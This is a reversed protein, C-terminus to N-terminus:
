ENPGKILITMISSDATTKINNFNKDLIEFNLTKQNLINANNIDIFIPTNADYEVLGDSNDNVPITMLINKRRGQKDSERNTYSSLKLGTYSVQSADYSDLALSRSEVIFSDTLSIRFPITATSFSWCDLFEGNGILNSLIAYGDPGTDLNRFGLFEWIDRHMTVSYTTTRAWRTFEDPIGWLNDGTANDLWDSQITAWNNVLANSPNTLFNRGTIEWPPDDSSTDNDYFQNLWPDFTMNFMELQINTSAGNLYIYPYLDQEDIGLTQTFIERRLYQKPEITPSTAADPTFTISGITLIGTTLDATATGSRTDGPIPPGTTYLDWETASTARWWHELASGDQTRRFDAYGTGLNTRDFRETAGGPTQTYDNGSTLDLFGLDIVQCVSASLEGGKMEFVIFDHEDIPAGFVKNPLINSDQEVITVEGTEENITPKLTFKYTQLPRNYRIEWGVQRDPINEGPDLGINPLNTNTLGIGFGQDQLGSGSTVGQKIRIVMVGNGNSLKADGSIINCSRDLTAPEGGIKNITTKNATTTVEIKTEDYNLVEARGSSDGPLNFPNLFPAYRYEVRKREGDNRINFQSGINNALAVDQGLLATNLTRLINAELKIPADPTNGYDIIDLLGQSLTNNPDLTDTTVIVKNNFQSVSLIDFDNTFTTNLLAIKSKPEIIIDNQFNSKFIGNDDSALRILKVM